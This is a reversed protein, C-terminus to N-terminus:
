VMDSKSGTQSGHDLSSFIWPSRGAVRIEQDIIKSHLWEPIVAIPDRSRWERAEMGGRRTQLIM